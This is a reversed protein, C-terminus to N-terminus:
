YNLHDVGCYDSIPCGRGYFLVVEQGVYTVDYLFVSITSFVVDRTLKLIRMDCVSLKSVTRWSKSFVCVCPVAPDEEEQYIGIVDKDTLEM